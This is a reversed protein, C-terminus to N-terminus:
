VFLLGSVLYFLTNIILRHLLLNCYYNLGTTLDSDLAFAFACTCIISSGTSASTSSDISSSGM